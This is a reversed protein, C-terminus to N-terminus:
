EEAGSLRTRIYRGDKHNNTVYRVIYRNGQRTFFIYWTTHKSTKRKFFVYHLEKGYRGFRRHMIPTLSYHPIIPITYAFDLIDAVLANAYEIYSFYNNELLTDTLELLYTKIILPIVVNSRNNTTQM